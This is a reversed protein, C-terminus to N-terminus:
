EKDFEYFEKLSEFKEKELFECPAFTLQEFFKIIKQESLLETIVFSVKEGYSSLNQYNYLSSYNDEFQSLRNEKKLLDILSDLYKTIDNVIDESIFEAKNMKRDLSIEIRNVFKPVQKLLHIAEKQVLNIIANEVVKIIAKYWKKRKKKKKRKINNKESEGISGSKSVLFFLPYFCLISLYIAFIFLRKKM